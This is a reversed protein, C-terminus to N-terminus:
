HVRVAGHRDQLVPAALREPLRASDQAVEARTVGARGEPRLVELVAGADVSPGFPGLDVDRLIKRSRYEPTHHAGRRRISIGGRDTGCHINEALLEVDRLVLERAM